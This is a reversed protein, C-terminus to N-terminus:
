NRLTATIASSHFRSVILGQKCWNFCGLLEPRLLFLFSLGMPVFGFTCGLMASPSNKNHFPVRHTGCRNTSHEVSVAKGRGNGGGNQTRGYRTDSRSRDLAYARHANWELNGTANWTGTSPSSPPMNNQESQRLYKLRM